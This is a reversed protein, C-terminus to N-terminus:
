GVVVRIRRLGAVGSGRLRREIGSRLLRDLEYRSASDTVRVTLVGRVFGALTTRGLLPEPVLEQWLEGLRGMRRQTGAHHRKVYDGLFGLTLDRDRGGRWGRLRNIQRHAAQDRGPQPSEFSGMDSNYTRGDGKPVM